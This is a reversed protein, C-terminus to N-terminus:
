SYGHLTLYSYWFQWSHFFPYNSVEIVSLMHFYSHLSLNVTIINTCNKLLFLRVVPLCRMKFFFCSKNYIPIDGVIRKLLTPTQSLHQRFSWLQSIAGSFIYQIRKDSYYLWNFLTLCWFRNIIYFNLHM